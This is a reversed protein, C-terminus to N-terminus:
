LLRWLILAVLVVTVEIGVVNIFGIWFREGM